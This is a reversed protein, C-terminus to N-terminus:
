HEFYPGVVSASASKGDGTTASLGQGGRVRLCRTVLSCQGPELDAGADRYQRLSPTILTNARSHGFSSRARRAPSLDVTTIAPRRSHLSWIM